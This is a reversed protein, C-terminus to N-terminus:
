QLWGIDTSSAFNDAGYLYLIENLGYTKILESVSNRYYRLDVMCIQEYDSIAYTAFCHAYSDKILLLRKGNACGNNQITVLGHNGDLYVPYKDPNKLHAYYYLSDSKTSNDHITVTYSGPEASKWIELTDPKTLWLGSKSYSTGYFDEYRETCQYPTPSVGHANCFAGYLTNSGSATLHHDTRYYLDASAARFSDRVDIVTLDTNNEFILSFITEDPYPAHNSPLKDELIYGANPVVMLSAPLGTDRSFETLRTLISKVRDTSVETPVPFLYGDKGSYIGSDGNRGMLLQTYAHLGVYADRLPFHDALYTEFDRGFQGSTVSEFTLEPFKALVRKENQSFDSKPLVFLLVTTAGLFLVFLLSVCYKKINKM